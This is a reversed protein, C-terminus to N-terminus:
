ENGGPLGQLREATARLLESVQEEDFDPARLRRFLQAFFRDTEADRRSRGHYDAMLGLTWQAATDWNKVRPKAPLSVPAPGRRLWARLRGAAKDAQGMIEMRPPLPKAMEGALVNLDRDLGDVGLRRPMVYYWDAWPLLGPVRGAGGSRQRPSDPRLAHHCASCDYEAFEPWPLRNRPDARHALLALAAEASVAQGVTWRAAPIEARNTHWHRPLNALYTEFEFNLRPHGAAILDHNVERGPAGVHCGACVRAREALGALPWMGFRKKEEVSLRDWRERDAHPRLWVKAPGHCNECGFSRDPAAPQGHCNLCLVESQPRAEAASRARGLHVLMRRSAESFLAPYAKVHPDQTVWITYENGRVDRPGLGGHCARGSCAALGVGEPKAAPLQAPLAPALEARPRDAGWGALASAMVLAAVLKRPSM